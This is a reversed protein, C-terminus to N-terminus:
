KLFQQVEPSVIDYIDPINLSGTEITNFPSFVDYFARFYLKNDKVFFSGWCDEMWFDPMEELLYPKLNEIDEVIVDCLSSGDDIIYSNGGMLTNGCYAAYSSINDNEYTIMHKHEFNDPNSCLERFDATKLIAELSNKNNKEELNLESLLDKRIAKVLKENGQVPFELTVKKNKGKSVTYFQTTLYDGYQKTEGITVMVSSSTSKKKSSKKSTKAELGLSCLVIVSLLTSIIKKM